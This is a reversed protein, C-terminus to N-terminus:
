KNNLGGKMLKKQHKSGSCIDLINIHMPPLGTKKKRKENSLAVQKRFSPKSM